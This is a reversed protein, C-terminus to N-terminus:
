IKEFIEIGVGSQPSVWDDPLDEFATQPM